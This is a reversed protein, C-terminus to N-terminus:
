RGNAGPDFAQLGLRAAGDLDAASPDDEGDESDPAASPVPGHEGQHVATPKPEPFQGDSAVEKSPAPVKAAQSETWLHTLHCVLPKTARLAGQANDRILAALARQDDEPATVQHFLDKAEDRDIVFSHSPYAGVLKDLTGGKTNKNALRQGYAQAVAMARQIEGIRVPDIQEYIGRFLGVTLGTSIEAATRTTVQLGSTSIIAFLNEEFMQYSRTQLTSLAETINLGSGMGAIEDRNAVQTDLPGLEASDSMVLKDAGLAILTGASKCVTDVWVTLSGGTRVYARQLTRAIRYAVEPSGGYTTLLLLANKHLKHAGSLRAIHADAPAAIPGALIYLDADQASSIKGALPLLNPPPATTMCRARLRHRPRFAKLNAGKGANQSGGPSVPCTVPQTKAPM